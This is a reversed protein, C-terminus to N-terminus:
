SENAQIVESRLGLEEIWELTRPERDLFGNPGSDCLYGDVEETRIYGGAYDSAELLLVSDPGDRKALYYAACLGSIGGGIVATSM